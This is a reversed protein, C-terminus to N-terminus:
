EVKVGLGRVLAVAQTLDITAGKLDRPDVRLGDIKSGRLDVGGLKARTFDAGSLDCRAFTTGTLDAEMFNVESLDCEEFRVSRFKSFAFQALKAQCEKFFIDRYEAESSQYGILHCGMFEVRTVSAEPWEANALDCTLFRCDLVRVRQMRTQSFNVYQCTVQEFSLYRAHQASFDDNALQRQEYRAEPQLFPDPLGKALEHKPLDPVKVIGRAPNTQKNKVFNGRKAGSITESWLVETYWGIIM